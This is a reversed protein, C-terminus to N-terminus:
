KVYINIQKMIEIDFYNEKAHKNYFIHYGLSEFLGGILRVFSLSKLYNYYPRKIKITEM